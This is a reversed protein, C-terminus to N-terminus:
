SILIGLIGALWCMWFVIVWGAGLGMLYLVVGLWFRFRDFDEMVEVSGMTIVGARIEPDGGRM